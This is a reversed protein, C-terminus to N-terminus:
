YQFIAGLYCLLLPKRGRVGGRWTASNNTACCKGRPVDCHALCLRPPVELRRPQGEPPPPPSPPPRPPTPPTQSVAPLHDRSPLTVTNPSCTIRFPSECSPSHPQQEVFLSRTEEKGMSTQFHFSASPCTRQGSVPACCIGRGANVARSNSVVAM